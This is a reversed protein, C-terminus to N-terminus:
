AVPACLRRGQGDFRGFAGVATRVTSTGPRKWAPFGGSSPPAPWVSGTRSAPLGHARIGESVTEMHEFEAEKRRWYAM